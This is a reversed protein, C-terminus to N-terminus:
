VIKPIIDVFIILLLAISMKFQGPLRSLIFPNARNISAPM